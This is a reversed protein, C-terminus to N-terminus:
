SAKLSRWITVNAAPIFNQRLPFGAFGSTPRRRLLAEIDPRDPIKTTVGRGELLDRGIERQMTVTSM